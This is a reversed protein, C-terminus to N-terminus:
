PNPHGSDIDVATFNVRYVCASGIDHVHLIFCQRRSYNVSAYSRGLGEGRSSNRSAILM